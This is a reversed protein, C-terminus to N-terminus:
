FFYKGSKQLQVTHAVSLTLLVLRISLIMLVRVSVSFVGSCM